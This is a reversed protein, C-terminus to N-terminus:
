HFRPGQLARSYLEAKNRGRTEGACLCATDGCGLEEWQQRKGRKHLVLHRKLDDNGSSPDLRRTVSTGLFPELSVLTILWSPSKQFARTGM